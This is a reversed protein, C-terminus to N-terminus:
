HFWEVKTLLYNRLCFGVTLAQSLGITGHCTMTVAQRDTNDHLVKLHSSAVQPQLYNVNVLMVSKGLISYGQM